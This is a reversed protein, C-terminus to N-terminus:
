FYSALGFQVQVERTAPNNLLDRAWRQRIGSRLVLQESVQWALGTTVGSLQDGAFVGGPLTGHYYDAQEARLIWRLRAQTGTKLTHRWLDAYVDLHWGFQRSAYISRSHDPVDIWAMAAEGRLEIRWFETRFDVAGLRLTRREDVREGDITWRNYAGHYASVGFEFQDRHLLAIRGSVSPQGNNDLNLLGEHKGSPIDVRGTANGLINGGLGNTVYLQANLRFAGFGHEGHFGAGIESLTAPLITESVLPRDVLPWRPADHDQNFGGIPILLVGARLSLWATLEADLQATEIRLERGGNEFEIESIFEVRPLINAYVFLNFRELAFNTGEIVGENKTWTTNAEVYGGLAASPGGVVVPRSYVADAVGHREPHQALAERNRLIRRRAPASESSHTQPDITPSEAQEENFLVTQSYASDRIESNEAADAAYSSASFLICLATVAGGLHPLGLPSRRM